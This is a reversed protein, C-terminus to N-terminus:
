NDDHVVTAIETVQVGFIVTLISGEIVFVTCYMIYLAQIANNKFDLNV